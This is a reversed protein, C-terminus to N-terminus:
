VRLVELPTHRALKEYDRDQHLIRAGARIAPVAVLCDVLSRLTEGAARCRRFLRAADEFDQLGELRLLEFRRLHIAERPRRTGALVEMLIVETVGIRARRSVLEKVALHVASGTAREHEVWASSDIV